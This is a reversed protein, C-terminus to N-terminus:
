ESVKIKLAKFKAAQKELSRIKAARMVEARALAGPLTRHWDRGEKQAYHTYGPSDAVIMSSTSKSWFRAEAKITGSTLARSTLWATFTTEEM